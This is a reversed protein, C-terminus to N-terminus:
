LCLSETLASERALIVGLDAPIHLLGFPSGFVKLVCAIVAEVAVVACIVGPIPCMRGYIHGFVAVKRINLM